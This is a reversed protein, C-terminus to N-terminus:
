APAGGRGAGERFRSVGALLAPDALSSMGLEFERAMAADHGLEASEIASTRDNRLCAQPLSALEAALREAADRVTGDSRFLM